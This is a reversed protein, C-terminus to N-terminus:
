LSKHHIYISPQFLTFMLDFFKVFSNPRKNNICTNKLIHFTIILKKICNSDDINIQIISTNEFTIFTM